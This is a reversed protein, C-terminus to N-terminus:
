RTFCFVLKSAVPSSSHVRTFSTNQFVIDTLESWSFMWLHETEKWHHRGERVWYHPLDIILFGKPSLLSDAKKIADLPDVLHELVDHFTILDFSPLDSKFDEFSSLFFRHGTREGSTDVGYADCGKEVLFDVFAGNSTGVDLTLSLPIDVLYRGYEKYRLAAIEYDHKYSHGSKKRKEIYGNQYIHSYEKGTLPVRQRVVRCCSCVLVPISFISKMEGMKNGCVCSELLM